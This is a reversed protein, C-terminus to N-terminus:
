ECEINARKRAAEIDVFRDIWAIFPPVGHLSASKIRFKPALQTSKKFVLHLAEQMGIPYEQVSLQLTSTVDTETEVENSHLFSLSVQSPLACTLRFPQAEQVPLHVDCRESTTIAIMMMTTTMTTM